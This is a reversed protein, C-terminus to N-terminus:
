ALGAEAYAADFSTRLAKWADNAAQRHEKSTVGSKAKVEDVESKFADYKSALDSKTAASLGDARHKSLDIRVATRALQGERKDMYTRHKIEPLKARHEAEIASM